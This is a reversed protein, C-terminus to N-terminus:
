IWTYLKDFSGHFFAIFIMCGCSTMLLWEANIFWSGLAIVSTSVDLLMEKRVAPDASTTCYDTMELDGFGGLGFTGLCETGELSVFRGLPSDTSFWDKKPWWM